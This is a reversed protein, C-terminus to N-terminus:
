RCPVALAFSSIATARSAALATRSVAGYSVDSWVTRFYM